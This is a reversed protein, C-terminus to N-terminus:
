KGKIKNYLKYYKEAEKSVCHVKMNARDNATKTLHDYEDLLKLFLKELENM